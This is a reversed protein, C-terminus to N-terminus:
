THAPPRMHSSRNGAPLIGLRVAINSRIERQPCVKCGGPIPRSENRSLQPPSVSWHCGFREVEKFLDFRGNHAAQESCRRNRRCRNRRFGSAAARGKCRPSIRGCGQRKVVELRGQETVKVSPSFWFPLESNGCVLRMGGFRHGSPAKKYLLAAGSPNRIQVLAFAPAPLRQV